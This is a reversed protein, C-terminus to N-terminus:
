SPSVVFGWYLSVKNYHVYIIKGTGQGKMTVLNLQVAVFTQNQQSALHKEITKDRHHRALKTIIKGTAQGKMTVLNLQIGALKIKSLPLINRLLKTEITGLLSPLSSLM